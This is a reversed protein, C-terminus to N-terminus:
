IRALDQVRVWQEQFGESEGPNEIAWKTVGLEECLDTWLAVTEAIGIEAVAVRIVLQKGILDYETKM